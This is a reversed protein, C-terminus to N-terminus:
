LPMQRHKNGVGCVIVGGADGGDCLWTMLALALQALVIVERAVDIVKGQWTLFKM